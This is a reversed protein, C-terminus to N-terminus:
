WWGNIFGKFIWMFGLAIIEICLFLIQLLSDKKAVAISWLIVMILWFIFSIIWGIDAPTMNVGKKYFFDRWQVRLPLKMM